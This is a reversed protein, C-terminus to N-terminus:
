NIRSNLYELTFWFDKIKNSFEPLETFSFPKEIFCNQPLQLEAFCMEEGGLSTLVVVPVKRLNNDNRLYALFTEKCIHLSKADIIIIDPVESNKDSLFDLADTLNTFPTINYNSHTFRFAQTMIMLDLESEDVLIINISREEKM